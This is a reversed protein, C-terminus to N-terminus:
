AFKVLIGDINFAFDHKGYGLIKDTLVLAPEWDNIYGDSSASFDSPLHYTLIILCACVAVDYPKRATKCFGFRKGAPTRIPKGTRAPGKRNIIFTEHGEARAGNFRIVESTIEAPLSTDNSDFVIKIGMNNLEPWIKKIDEVAADWAAPPIEKGSISWYHTYGM